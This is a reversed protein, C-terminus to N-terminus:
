TCDGNKLREVVKDMAASRSGKVLVVMGARLLPRAHAILAEQSEFHLASEGFCRAALASKAGVSWLQEIGGALADRGVGAHAEDSDAGLEGMDGMILIRTGPYQGLVDIAAKFSSPSANYSDDILVAGGVGTLVNLRGPVRRVSHLGAAVDILTAGAEMAAAAAAAANVVNHRGPLGLEIRSKGVPTSLTFSMAAGEEMRIDSAQYDPQSQATDLGFTVVR